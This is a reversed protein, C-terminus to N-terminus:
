DHIRISRPSWGMKQKMVHILFLPNGLIYRRWMRGPEQILRFLWEIRAARMWEPARSVNGASFDFLAGVGFALICHEATLNDKIWLEQAPVGKAVLVIDPKWKALKELMAVQKVRGVFGHGAVRYVHRDDIESFADVAKKAIGPRAGYLAIKLPHPSTRLVSPIFDTGNLNDKFKEGHLIKAAIDVGVGDPIVTFSNLANAFTSDRQAVNGNHANLFTVPTFLKLVIRSHVFNLAEELSLDAVKVGLIDRRPLELPKGRQHTHDWLDLPQETM